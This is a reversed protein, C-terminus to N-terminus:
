KWNKEKAKFVSNINDLDKEIYIYNFKLAYKVVDQTIVIGRSNLYSLIRLVKIRSVRTRNFIYVLDKSKYNTELYDVYENNLIEPDIKVSHPIAYMVHDKGDEIPEFFANLQENLETKEEQIDDCGPLKLNGNDSRLMGLFFM